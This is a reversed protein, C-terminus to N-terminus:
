GLAEPVLASLLLRADLLPDEDHPLEHDENIRVTLRQAARRLSPPAGSRDRFWELLVFASGTDDTQFHDAYRLRVAWGVARRACVRAMGENGVGRAERARDMEARIDEIQPNAM